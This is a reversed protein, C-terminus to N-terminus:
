GFSARFSAPILMCLQEITGAFEFTRRTAGFEVLRYFYLRNGVIAQCDAWQECRPDRVV